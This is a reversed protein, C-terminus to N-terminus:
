VLGIGRDNRDFRDGYNGVRAHIQQPEVPRGDRMKYLGRRNIERALDGAPMRNAPVSALVHAMADHLSMRETPEETQDTALSLLFEFSIVRREAEALDKTAEDRVRRAATLDQEIEARRAKVVQTVLDLHENRDM